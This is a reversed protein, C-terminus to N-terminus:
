QTRRRGRGADNGRVGKGDGAPRIQRKTTGQVIVEALAEAATADQVFVRAPGELM